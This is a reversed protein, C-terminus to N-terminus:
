EITLYVKLDGLMREALIDSDIRQEDDAWADTHSQAYEGLAVIVKYTDNTETDDNYFRIADNRVRSRETAYLIANAVDQIVSDTPSKVDEKLEEFYTENNKPKVPDYLLIKSSQGHKSNSTSLTYELAYEDIDTQTLKVTLKQIDERQTHYMLNELIKSQISVSRELMIPSLLNIEKNLPYVEYPTYENFFPDYANYIQIQPESDM